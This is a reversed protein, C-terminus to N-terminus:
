KLLSVQTVSGQARLITLRVLIRFCLVNGKRFPETLLQHFLGVAVHWHQPSKLVSSDINRSTDGDCPM